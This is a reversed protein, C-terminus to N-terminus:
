AVGEVTRSTTTEVFADRGQLAEVQRELVQVRLTLDGIVAMLDRDNVDWMARGLMSAGKAAKRLARFAGLAVREQIPEITSNL